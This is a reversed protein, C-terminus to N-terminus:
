KDGQHVLYSKHDPGQVMAVLTGRSQMIGRLAIEAITLGAAGDGRKVIVRPEIGSGLVNVFPDRRGGPDYTYSEVMPTKADPAPGKDAPPRTQAGAVVALGCVLLSLLLARM